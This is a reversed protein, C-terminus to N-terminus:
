GLRGSRVDPVRPPATRRTWIPVCCPSRTPAEVKENWSPSAISRGSTPSWSSSSRIPPRASRRCASSSRWTRRSRAGSAALFDHWPQDRAGAALQVGDARPSDDSGADIGSTEALTQLRAATRAEVDRLAALQERRGDDAETDAMAGFLAAGLVEGRYAELLLDDYESM